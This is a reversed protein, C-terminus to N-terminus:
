ADDELESGPETRYREDLQTFQWVWKHPEVTAMKNLISYNSCKEHTDRIGPVTVIERKCELKELLNLVYDPEFNDTGGRCAYLLASKDRVDPPDSRANQNTIVSPWGVPIQPRHLVGDAGRLTWSAARDPVHSRM